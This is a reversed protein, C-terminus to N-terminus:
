LWIIALIDTLVFASGSLIEASPRSSGYFDAVGEWSALDGVDYCIAVADARPLGRPWALRGHSIRFISLDCEYIYVDQGSRKKTSVRSWRVEVPPTGEFAPLPQPNSLPNGYRKFAEKVIRTKGCGKRGVVVISIPAFPGAQDFVARNLNPDALLGLPQSGRLSHSAVSTSVHSESGPLTSRRETRKSSVPGTEPKTSGLPTGGLWSGTSASAARPRVTSTSSVTEAPSAVATQSQLMTTRPSLVPATPGALDSPFSHTRGLPPSPRSRQSSSSATTYNGLQMKKRASAMIEAETEALRNGVESLASSSSARGSISTRRSSPESAAQGRLPNRLPRSITTSDGIWEEEGVDDDDEVDDESSESSDADKPRPTQKWIVEVREDEHEDHQRQGDPRGGDSDSRDLDSEYELDSDPRADKQPIGGISDRRSIYQGVRSSRLRPLQSRHRGDSPHRGVSYVPHSPSAPSRALGLGLGLGAKASGASSSSPASSGPPHMRERENPDSLGKPNLRRGDGFAVSEVRPTNSTSFSRTATGATSSSGDSLPSGFQAPTPSSASPPHTPSTFPGNHAM